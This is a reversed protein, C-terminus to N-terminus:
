QWVKASVVQCTKPDVTIEPVFGLYRGPEDFDFTVQWYDGVPSSVVRRKSAIIFPFHTEVYARAIGVVDCTPQPMAPNGMLQLTTVVTAWIAYKKRMSSKTPSASRWDSQTFMKMPMALGISRM